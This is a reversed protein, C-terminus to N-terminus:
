GSGTMVLLLITRFRISWFGAPTLASKNTALIFDRGPFPLSLSVLGVGLKKFFKRRQDQDM